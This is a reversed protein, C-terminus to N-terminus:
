NVDILVRKRMGVVNGDDTLGIWIDGGKTNAFSCVTKAISAPDDIDRKMESTQDESNMM